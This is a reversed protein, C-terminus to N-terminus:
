EGMYPTLDTPMPINLSKCFMLNIWRQTTKYVFGTPKNLGWPKLVEEANASQFNRVAKDTMPGFMGTIPLNAEINDNLFQQLLKVEAESNNKKGMRMYTNLLANCGEPLGSTSAGLVQGSPGISAGLVTGSPNGVPPGNGGGGSPPPPPPPPPPTVIVPAIALPGAVGTSEVNAVPSASDTAHVQFCYVGAEPATWTYSWTVSPAGASSLELSTDTGLQVAGEPLTSCSMTETEGAFNEDRALEEDGVKFIQIVASAVGSEIDGVAATVDTSVGTFTIPAIETTIVVHSYSNDFTSVPPMIDVFAACDPDALDVLQDGDNDSEDTCLPETNEVPAATVVVTRTVSATLSGSDTVTYTLTYTGPTEDDVTGTVVPTLSGDETDSGTAGLDTFDDSAGAVVNTPDTGNLTITPGDNVATVTISVTETNSDTVGDNAKFTFSDSGNYNTNPTYTFSGDTNLVLVGNAPSGVVAYTLTQAPIDADTATVNGTKLVDESTTISQADAAPAVNVESVTVTFAQSTTIVGDSVKATLNYIAPGQAETPTWSFAGTNSDITAGSPLGDVSYTLPDSDPDAGVLSFALNVLENVAQDLITALTPAGNNVTISVTATVSTTVGDSVSYTFSDPGTYDLAPTYTVQNGSVASLSGNTPSTVTITLTQAPVDVDSATLTIVKATNVHTSTTQDASVPAVNIENVTITFSQAHTGGNGDAVTITVPYSGPGQAESPTWTFVGSSDVSMGSVAGSSISYTLTGGDIDSASTSVSLLALEDVSQDAISSLVPADNVPNVTISVTATNSDTNPSGNDTAKFTFSDSGNFNANPTYTVQNGVVSGLTGSSPGSVISYTLSNGDVDTAVLTITTATDENTTASGNQAVPANNVPPPIVVSFTMTALDSGDQGNTTGHYVIVKVNYTGSGTSTYDHSGSWTANFGTANNNSGGFYSPSFSSLGGSTPYEVWVTTSANKDTDWDVAMHQTGNAGGQPNAASVGSISLVQGTVSSTGSVTYAAAASAMQPMSFIVGSFVTVIMAFAVAVSATKDLLSPSSRFMTFTHM